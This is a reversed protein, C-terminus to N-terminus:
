HEARVRPKGPVLVDGTRALGGLDHRHCTAVQRFKWRAVEVQSRLGWVGVRSVEKEARQGKGVEERPLFDPSDM